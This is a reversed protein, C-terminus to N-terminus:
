QEVTKTSESFARGEDTVDNSHLVPTSSTLRGFELMATALGSGRFEQPVGIHGIRSVQPSDGDIFRADVSSWKLAANGAFVQSSYDTANANTLSIPKTNAVVMGEIRGEADIQELATLHFQKGEKDAYTATNTATRNGKEDVITGKHEVNSIRSAVDKAKDSLGVYPATASVLNNPSIFGSSPVKLPQVAGASGGGGSTWRGSDDRPQGVYKDASPPTIILDSASVAFKSDFRDTSM